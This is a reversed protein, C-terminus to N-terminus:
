IGGSNPGSFLALNNRTFVAAVNDLTENTLHTTQDFLHDLRKTTQQQQEKSTHYYYYCSVLGTIAGFLAAVPLLLYQRHFMQIRESQTERGNLEIAGFLVGYLFGLLINCSTFTLVVIPMSLLSKNKILSLILDLLSFHLIFQVSMGIMGYVFSRRIGIYDMLAQGDILVCM